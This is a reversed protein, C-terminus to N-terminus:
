IHGAKLEAKLRNYNEIQKPIIIQRTGPILVSLGNLVTLGTAGERIRKIEDWTFFQIAKIDDESDDSANYKQLGQDTLLIRFSTYYAKFRKQAIRLLFLMFLLMLVDVILWSELHTLNKLGMLHYDRNGQVELLIVVALSSIVAIVKQRMISKVADDVKDGPIKFLHDM